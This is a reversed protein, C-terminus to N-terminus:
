FIGISEKENEAFVVCTSCTTLRAHLCLTAIIGNPPLSYSSYVACFYKKKSKKNEVPPVDTVHANNHGVFSFRIITDSSM